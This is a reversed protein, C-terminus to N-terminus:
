FDMQMDAMALFACMEPLYNEGFYLKEQQFKLGHKVNELGVNHNHLLGLNLTFVQLIVHNKHRAPIYIEAQRLMFFTRQGLRGFRGRASM